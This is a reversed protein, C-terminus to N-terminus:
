FIKNYLDISASIREKRNIAGSQKLYISYCAKKGAEEYRHVKRSYPSQPTSVKICSGGACRRGEMDKATDM